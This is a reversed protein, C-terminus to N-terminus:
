NPGHALTLTSRLLAVSSLFAQSHIRNWIITKVNGRWGFSLAARGKVALVKGYGASHNACVCMAWSWHAARWPEM